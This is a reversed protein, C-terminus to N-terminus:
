ENRYAAMTDKFSDISSRPSWSIADAGAEIARLIGEAKSGGTAIIKVDPFDRRIRRVVDATEKGRAVNLIDAGARLRAAYDVEGSAVTAIVPIELVARLGMITEESAGSNVVVGFAGMQEAYNGMNWSRLGDTLGGGVGAFVPCPAVEAIVRTIATQPTYPYVSMIADADINCIVAIDTTAAIARITRGFIQIGPAERIEKPMHVMHDRLSQRREFTRAATGDVESLITQTAKALLEEAM